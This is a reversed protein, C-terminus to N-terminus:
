ADKRAGARRGRIWRVIGGVIALAVLTVAGTLNPNLTVGSVILITIVIGAALAFAALTVMSIAFMRVFTAVIVIYGIVAAGTGLLSLHSM